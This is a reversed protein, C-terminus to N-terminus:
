VPEIPGGGAARPKAEVHAGKPAAPELGVRVVEWEGEGAERLMWTSDPQEAALRDREKEAEERNM